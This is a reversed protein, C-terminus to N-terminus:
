SNAILEYGSVAILWRTKNKMSSQLKFDHNQLRKGSKIPMHTGMGAM